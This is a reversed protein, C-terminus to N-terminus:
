EEDKATFVKSGDEVFRKAWFILGWMIIGGIGIFAAAIGLVELMRESSSYRETYIALVSGTIAMVYIIAPFILLTIALAKRDKRQMFVGGKFM